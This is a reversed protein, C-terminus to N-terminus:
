GNFPLAFSMANCALPLPPSSDEDLTRVSKDPRILKRRLLAQYARVM